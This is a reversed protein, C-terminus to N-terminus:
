LRMRDLCCFSVSFQLLCGGLCNLVSKSARPKMILRSFYDRHLNSLNVLLIEFNTCSQFVKKLHKQSEKSDRILSLQWVKRWKGNCVSQWKKQQKRNRRRSLKKLVSLLLRLDFLRWCLFLIKINSSSSLHFFSFSIPPSFFFAYFVEFKIWLAM